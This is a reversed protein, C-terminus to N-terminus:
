LFGMVFLFFYLLYHHGDTLAEIFLFFKDLGGRFLTNDDVLVVVIVLNQFPLSQENINTKFCQCIDLLPDMLFNLFKTPFYQQKQQSSSFKCKDINSEITLLFLLNDVSISILKDLSFYLNRYLVQFQEVRQQFNGKFGKGVFTFLSFLGEGLTEAGICIESDGDEALSDQFDYFFGVIRFDLLPFGEYGTHDDSLSFLWDIM